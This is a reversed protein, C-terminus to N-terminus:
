HAAMRLEIWEDISSELWGVSGTGKTANANLKFAQPFSNDYRKSKPNMWDYITSRSLGTREIVQKIRLIRRIPQNQSSM